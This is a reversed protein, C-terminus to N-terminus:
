KCSVSKFQTLENTNQYNRVRGCTRVYVEESAKIGSTPLETTNQTELYTAGLLLVSASLVLMEVPLEGRIDSTFRRIFFTITKM